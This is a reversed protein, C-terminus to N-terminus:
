AELKKWNIRIGLLIGIMIAYMYFLFIIVASLYGYVIKFNFFNIFVIFGITFIICYFLSILVGYKLERFSYGHLVIKNLGYIILCIIIIGIIYSFFYTIKFIFPIFSVVLITIFIIIIVILAIIISTIRKNYKYDIKGDTIIESAQIFHYYLSSSSYISTIVLILNVSLNSNHQFLYILVEKLIGNSLFSEIYKIPDLVLGLTSVILFLFSGGNLLIFFCLSGAITTIRSEVVFHFIDIIRKM